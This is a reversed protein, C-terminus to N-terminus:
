LFKDSQELVRGNVQNVFIRKEEPNQHTDILEQLMKLDGREVVSFVDDSGVAQVAPAFFLACLLVKHVISNMMLYRLSLHLKNM